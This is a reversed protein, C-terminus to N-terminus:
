QALAPIVTASSRCWFDFRTSMSPHGAILSDGHRLPPVGPPWPALPSTRTPVTSTTLTKDDPRPCGARQLKKDLPSACDAPKPRPQAADPQRSRRDARPRRPRAAVTAGPFYPRGRESAPQAGRRRVGAVTSSRGTWAIQAVLPAKAGTPRRESLLSHSRVTPQSRGNQRHSLAPM